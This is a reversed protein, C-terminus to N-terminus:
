KPKPYLQPCDSFKNGNLNCGDALVLSQLSYCGGFEDVAIAALKPANVSKLSYCSVKFANGGESVKEASPLDIKKLACCGYFMNKSIIKVNQLGDIIELATCEFFTNDGFEEPPIGIKIKKLVRQSQIRPEAKKLDGKFELYILGKGYVTPILSSAGTDLLINSGIKIARICKCYGDASNYGGFSGEILRNVMFAVNTGTATLCVDNSASTITIIYQGSTQYIHYVNYGYSAPYNYICGDDGYDITGGEFRDSTSNYLGIIPAVDGAEAEVYMVVQNPEPDPIDLWHSPFTWDDSGGGGGEFMKKGMAFGVAVGTGFSM